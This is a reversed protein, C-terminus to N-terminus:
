KKIYKSQADPLEVWNKEIYDESSDVAILVQDNGSLYGSDHQFTNVKSDFEGAYALQGNKTNYWWVNKKAGSIKSLDVQMPRGSYNYVLLYDNGRTAIARDYREGNAGAIISQDPIRQFYPFTLVLNKIYKMQNYGPAKLADYWPTTAGYAAGVGPRVFQM